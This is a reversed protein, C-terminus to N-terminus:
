LQRHHGYLKDDLSFYKQPQSLVNNNNVVGPGRCLGPSDGSVPIHLWGTVEHEYWHEPLVTLIKQVQNKSPGTSLVKPNDCHQSAPTVMQMCSTCYLQPRRQWKVAPSCQGGGSIPSVWPGLATESERSSVCLLSNLLLVFATM